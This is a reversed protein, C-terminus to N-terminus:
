QGDNRSQLSHISTGARQNAWPGGERKGMESGGFWFGAGRGEERM